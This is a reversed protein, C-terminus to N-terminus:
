EGGGKAGLAEWLPMVPEARAPTGPPIPRVAQVADRRPRPRTAHHGQLLAPLLTTM